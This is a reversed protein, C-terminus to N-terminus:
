SCNFSHTNIKTCNLDINKSYAVFPKSLNNWDPDPYSIKYKTEIGLYTFIWGEGWSNYLPINLDKSIKITDQMEKLDLQTPYLFPSMFVLGILCLCCVPILPIKDGRLILGESNEKEMLGLVIFPVSLFIYKSKLLGIGLILLSYLFLEKPVRKVFHVIHFIFILGVFPIEEAIVKETSVLINFSSFIYGHFLTLFIILIGLFGMIRYNSKIPLMFFVSLLILISAFWLNISIIGVSIALGLSILKLSLKDVKLYLTFLGLAMFSLTWGFFDNEFRLAELFFLPTVSALVFVFKWSFDQTIGLWSKEVFFRKGFVWLGLLAFFYFFFMILSIFLINCSFFPLLSAFWSPSSLSNVYQTQGCAVAMFAFSDAGWVVGRLLLGIFPALAALFILVFQQWFKVM